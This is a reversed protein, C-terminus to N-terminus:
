LFHPALIGACATAQFCLQWSSFFMHVYCVNFASRSCWIASTLTVTRVSRCGTYYAGVDKARVLDSLMDGSMLLTKM